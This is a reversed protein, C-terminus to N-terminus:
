HKLLSNHVQELFKQPAKGLMQHKKWVLHLGVKLPPEFPRFEFDTGEGTNIINDICLTYGVKERVLISANFLLNYTAVVNLPQSHRGMWGALANEVMVQDSVILPLNELDAAKISKKEALPSDKRMLVGWTDINPLKIFDYKSIDAPEIIIAFDLLGGDLKEKVEEPNGSIFHFCIEPFRRRLERIVEAIPSIGKTEASGIYIDGSVNDTVSSIETKTKESLALIEEARRRLIIGEETLQLKRKDRIFLKKGLEEELDMMQRSLTPQTIHLSEAANTINQEKAVALFYRLIRIDM